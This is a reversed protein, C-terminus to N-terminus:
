FLSNNRMNAQRCFKNVNNETLRKLEHGRGKGRRWRIGRRAGVSGGEWVLVYNWRLEIKVRQM